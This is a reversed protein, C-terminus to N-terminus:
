WRNKVKEAFGPFDYLCIITGNDLVATGTYKGFVQHQNTSLLFISLDASRDLLPTFVLKLRDDSSTIRWPKGYEYEGKSNRPIHFAVDELKSAYGNFFLMNETAASTDGFGYGLNFGFRNGDIVGQCAGWYWTTKYPWVGRGWDLLGFSDLPSFCINCGGAKAYGGASMGIIKRNYYFQRKSKPFPTAIAMSDKPEDFLTVSLTLKNGAINYEDANEQIDGPLSSQGSFKKKKIFDKIFLGIHRQDKNHIISIRFESDQYHINGKDSTEPMSLYKDPVYRVFSKTSEAKRSFDILTASVLLISCSKGVTLAAAYSDNYILYYDWEKLRLKSPVDKRQFRLLPSTAYGKQILMGHKDLLKSPTTIRHQM